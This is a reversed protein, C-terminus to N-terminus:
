YRYGRRIYKKKMFNRNSPIKKLTEIFCVDSFVTSREEQFYILIQEQYHSSVRRTLNRWSYISATSCGIAQALRKVAGEPKTLQMLGVAWKLGRKKDRYFYDIYRTNYDFKRYDYDMRRTTVRNRMAEKHSRILGLRQLWRTVQRSSYDIRTDRFFKEAIEIASMRMVTYMDHLLKGWEKGYFLEIAEYKVIM